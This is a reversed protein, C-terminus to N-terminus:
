RHSHVHPRLAHLLYEVVARDVKLVCLNNPGFCLHQLAFTLDSRSMNGDLVEPEISKSKQDQKLEQRVRTNTQPKPPPPEARSRGPLSVVPRPRRWEDLASLKRIHLRPSIISM